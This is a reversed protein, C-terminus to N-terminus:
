KVIYDELLENRMKEFYRMRCEQCDDGCGIPNDPTKGIGCYPCRGPGMAEHRADILKDILAEINENAKDVKKEGKCSDHWDENTLLLNAIVSAAERFLPANAAATLDYGLIPALANASEAEEILIDVFRLPDNKITESVKTDYVRIVEKRLM